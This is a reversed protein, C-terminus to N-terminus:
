IGMKNLVDAIERLIGALKPHQNEFVVTQVDLRQSLLLSDEEQNQEAELLRHIDGLCVRLMEIDGQDLAENESLEEHLSELLSKLQTSTM